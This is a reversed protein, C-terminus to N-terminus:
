EKGKSFGTLGSRGYSGILLPPSAECKQNAIPSLVLSRKWSRALQLPTRGLESFFYKHQYELRQPTACYLRGTSIVAGRSERETQSGPVVVERQPLYIPTLITSFNSPAALLPPTDEKILPNFDARPRVRAWKLVDYGVNFSYVTMLTLRLNGEVCYNLM